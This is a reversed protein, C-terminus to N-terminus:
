DMHLEGAGGNIFGSLGLTFGNSEPGVFFSSYRAFVKNGDFDEMDVLLEYSKKNTM